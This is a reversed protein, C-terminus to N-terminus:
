KANLTYLFPSVPNRHAQQEHLRKYTTLNTTAHEDDGVERYAHALRYYAEALDPQLVLARKYHRIAEQWSGTKAYAKAIEEHSAAHDERLRLSENLLEIARGPNSRQAEDRGLLYLALFDKPHRKLYAETLERIEDGQRGRAEASLGLYYLPLTSDTFTRAAKLFIGYAEEYNGKGYVATGFALQIKLSAPFDQVAPRGVLTAAEFSQHSILEYLYDFRYDGSGPELKAARQFARVADLPRNTKEYAEGLLDEVEAKEQKGRLMELTRGAQVANGARLYALSLNYGTDYSDPSLAYAKELNSIAGVYDGAEAQVAGLHDFLEASAPGIKAILAATTRAPSLSRQAIQTEFLPLAVDLDNPALALAVRLDAEAEVWHKRSMQLTARNSYAVANKRDLQIAATFEEFAGDLDGQRALAKGLNVRPSSDQPRIDKSKQFQEIARKPENQEEYVIGLLLHARFDRPDANLRRELAERALSLHGTKIATEVGKDDLPPVDSGPPLQVFLLVTVASLLM